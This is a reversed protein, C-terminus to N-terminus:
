ADGGARGAFADVDLDALLRGSHDLDAAPEGMDFTPLAVPARGPPSLAEVIADNVVAKFSAGRERMASEVLRQADPELTITTRM